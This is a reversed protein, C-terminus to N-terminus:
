YLDYIEVALRARAYESELELVHDGLPLSGQFRLLREHIDFAWERVGFRPYWDVELLELELWLAQMDDFLPGQYLVVGPDLSTGEAQTWLEATRHEVRVEHVLVDLGFADRVYPDYKVRVAAAIEAPPLGHEGNLGQLERDSLLEVSALRIRVQRRHFLAAAALLAAADTEPLTMHDVYVLNGGPRELPPRGPPSLAWAPSQSAFAEDLTYMIGDNPEDGPNNLDLLALGLAEQIRPDTAGAHHLILGGLFPSNAEHLRHDWACTRDQVYDPHMIVFDSLELGLRPAWEQVTPNDYLRALRAGALVGASTFWRAFRRESALGELDHELMHRTVLCGMSHCALNVQTAGTVSLKHRIFKALILAYRDLAAPGDYPYHEIEAVDGPGLWAAPTGGYYELKALQDPASAGPEVDGCPHTVGFRQIRGLLGSCGQSQGYVMGPLEEPSKNYFGHVWVTLTTAAADHDREGTWVPPEQCDAQCTEARECPGCRGDGCDLWRDPDLVPALCMGQLCIGGPCTEPQDAQCSYDFPEAVQCGPDDGDAADSPADTAGADDAGGPDDEPPPADPDQPPPGDEELGADPEGVVEEAPETLADEGADVAGDPEACGAPFIVGGGLCALVLWTRM